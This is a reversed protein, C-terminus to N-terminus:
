TTTMTVKRIMVDHPNATIEIPFKSVCTM